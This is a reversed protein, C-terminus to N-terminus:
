NALVCDILVMSTVFGEYRGQITVTQGATLQELEDANHRNFTCQVDVLTGEETSGLIAWYHENLRNSVIKNVIGTVKLVRNLFKGDAATGDTAYASALENVTVEVVAEPEAKAAKKARAKPAPEPEAAEEAEAEPAAEPEAKAAKKARAKPAAEPKAAKKARAKPAPEPEPEPEPEVVEEVEAEPEPEPEPEAVEEAEAESVPEPETIEEVEPQAAFTGAELLKEDKLQQYTKEIKKYPRNLLPFGCWQCAWDETRLTQQGCNPCRAM